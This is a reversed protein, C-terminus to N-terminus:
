TNQCINSLLLVKSVTYSANPLNTPGSDLTLSLILKNMHDLM